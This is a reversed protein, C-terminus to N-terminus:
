VSAGELDKLSMMGLDHSGFSRPSLSALQDLIVSLKVLPVKKRNRDKVTRSPDYYKSAVYVSMSKNGELMAFRDFSYQLHSSVLEYMRSPVYLLLRNGACSIIQMESFRFSNFRLLADVFMKSPLVGLLGDVVFSLEFGEKKVSFSNGPIFDIRGDPSMKFLKGTSKLNRDRHYSNGLLRFYDGYLSRTHQETQLAHIRKYYPMASAYFGDGSSSPLHPMYKLIVYRYSAAVKGPSWSLEGDLISYVSKINVGNKVCLSYIDFPQWCIKLVCPNELVSRVRESDPKCIYYHGRTHLVYCYAKEAGYFVEISVTDSLALDESMMEPDAFDIHTLKPVRLPDDKFVSVTHSSVLVPESVPTTNGSREPEEISTVSNDPIQAGTEELPTDTAMYEQESVSIGATEEAAPIPSVSEEFSGFGEFLDFTGLEDEIVKKKKKSSLESLAAPIDFIEEAELISDCCIEWIKDQKFPEIELIRDYSKNRRKIFSNLVKNKLGKLRERPDESSAFLDSGSAELVKYINLSLTVPFPDPESLGKFLDVRSKFVNKADEISNKLLLLGDFSTIGYKLLSYELEINGNTCNSYYPCTRCLELGLSLVKKCYQSCTSYTPIGPDNRLKLVFEEDPLVADHYLFMEPRDKPLITSATAKYRLLAEDRPVNKNSCTDFYM